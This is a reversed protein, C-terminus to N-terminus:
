FAKVGKYTLLPKVAQLHMGLVHPRNNRPSDSGFSLYPDLTDMVNGWAQLTFRLIYLGAIDNLFSEQRVM